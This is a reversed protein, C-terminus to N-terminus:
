TEALCRRGDLIRVGRDFLRDRFRHEMGAVPSYTAQVGQIDCPRLAAFRSCCHGCVARGMAPPEVSHLALTRKGSGVGLSPKRICDYFLNDRSVIRSLCPTRLGDLMSMSCLGLRATARCGNQYVVDDDDVGGRECPLTPTM